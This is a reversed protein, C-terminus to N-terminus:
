QDHTIDEIIKDILALRKRKMEYTSGKIHRLYGEYTAHGKIEKVIYSFCKSDADVEKLASCIFEFKGDNILERAKQFDQILETTM